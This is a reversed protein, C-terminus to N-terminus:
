HSTLSQQAKALFQEPAKEVKGLCGQCCLYLPQGGILVKVPAGM